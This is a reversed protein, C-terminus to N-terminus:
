PLRDAEGPGERSTVKAGALLADYAARLAALGGGVVLVGTDIEM